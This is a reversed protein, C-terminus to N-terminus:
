LVRGARAESPLFAAGIDDLSPYSILVAKHKGHFLFLSGVAVASAGGGLVACRFDELRGAGGLAIDPIRVALAVSRILELDSRAMTGDRKISNVIIEGAGMEEMQIDLINKSM